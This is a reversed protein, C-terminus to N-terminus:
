GLSVSSFSSASIIIIVYANLIRKVAGLVKIYNHSRNSLSLACAATRSTKLFSSLSVSVSVLHRNQLAFCYM